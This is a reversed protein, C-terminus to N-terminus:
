VNNKFGLYRELFVLTRSIVEQEWIYSSFVHNAGKILVREALLGNKKMARYFGLSHGLPVSDDKTGQIILAAGRYRTIAQLPQVRPIQNIFSRGVLTGYYDVAKLKKIEPIDKEERIQKEEEVLDAAPAWLALAKVEPHQGAAYAAVAGGLSLGILGIREEDIGPRRKIFDIACDTDEVEDMVTTNMFDGGSDGCGRFDFRLSAIAKQELARAMKVFIRHAEVKNGTFGHCFVVAPIGKGRRKKASPRHLVGYIDEGNSKFIVPEQM